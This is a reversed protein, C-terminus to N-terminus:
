ANRKEANKGRSGGEEPQSELHVLFNEETCKGGWLLHKKKGLEGKGRPIGRRGRKGEIRWTALLFSGRSKM